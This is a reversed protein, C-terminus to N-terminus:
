DGGPWGLRGPAERAEQGPQDVVRRDERRPERADGVRDVGVAVVLARPVGVEDAGEQDARGVDDLQELRGSGTVVQVDPQDGVLPQGAQDLRDAQQEVAFVPDRERLDLDGQGGVVVRPGRHPDQEVLEGEGGRRVDLHWTGAPLGSEVHEGLVTGLARLVPGAARCRLGVRGLGLQGREQAAAEVPPQRELERGPQVPRHAVGGGVAELLM